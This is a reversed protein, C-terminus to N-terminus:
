VTSSELPSPQHLLTFSFCFMSPIRPEAQISLFNFICTYSKKYILDVTDPRVIVVEAAVAVQGGLEANALIDMM